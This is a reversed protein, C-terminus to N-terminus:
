ICPGQASIFMNKKDQNQGVAFQSCNAAMFCLIATCDKSQPWAYDTAKFPFPTVFHRHCQSQNIEQNIKILKQRM